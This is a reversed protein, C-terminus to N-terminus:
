QWPWWVEHLTLSSSCPQRRSGFLLPLSMGSHSSMDATEQATCFKCTIAVDSPKAPIELNVSTRQQCNDAQGAHHM